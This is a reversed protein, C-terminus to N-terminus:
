ADLLVESLTTCAPERHVLAVAHAAGRRRPRLGASCGAPFRRGRRAAWWRSAALKASRSPADLHRLLRRPSWTSTAGRLAEIANAPNGLPRAGRLCRTAGASMLRSPARRTQIGVAIRRWGASARALCGRRPGASEERVLFDSCTLGPLSEYRAPSPVPAAIPADRDGIARLPGACM